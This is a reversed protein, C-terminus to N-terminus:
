DNGLNNIFEAVAPLLIEDLKEDGFEDCVAHFSLAKNILSSLAAWDMRQKHNLQNLKVRKMGFLREGLTAQLPNAWATPADDRSLDGVFIFPKCEDFAAQIESVDFGRLGVRDIAAQFSNIAYEKGRKIQEEYRLKEGNKLPRGLDTPEYSFGQAQIRTSM